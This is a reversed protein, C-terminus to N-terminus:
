RTRALKKELYYIAVACYERFRGNADKRDWIAILRQVEGRTRSSSDRSLVQKVSKLVEKRNSKLRFWNLNLITNIELDFQRDDSRITGDGAYQIRMRPHHAPNAPNISIDMNAKRTDCYQNSPPSSVNGSCGGLMNGYDLQEGPHRTQSHWHEVKMSTVSIRQMCYACLYGQEALLEERIRNKVPTFNGGDYVAGPRTRYQALEYPEAKKTIARM